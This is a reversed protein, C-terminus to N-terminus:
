VQTESSTERVRLQSEPGSKHTTIALKQVDSQGPKFVNKRHPCRPPQSLDHDWTMPDLRDEPEVSPM